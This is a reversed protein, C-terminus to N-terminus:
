TRGGAEGRRELTPSIPFANRSLAFCVKPREAVSPTKAEIPNELVLFVCVGHYREPRSIPRARVFSAVNDPFLISNFKNLEYKQSQLLFIPDYHTLGDATCPRSRVLRSGAPGYAAMM